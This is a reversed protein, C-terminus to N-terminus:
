WCRVLCGRGMVVGRPLSSLSFTCYCSLFFGRDDWSLEGAHTTDTTVFDVIFATITHCLVTIAACKGKVKLEGDSATEPPKYQLHHLKSRLQGSTAIYSPQLVAIKWWPQGGVRPADGKLETKALEQKQAMLVSLRNKLRANASKCLSLANREEDQSLRCCSSVHRVSRLYDNCIENTEWVLSNDSYMLALILKLRVAHADPSLDQETREQLLTFVWKEESTFQTDIACVEALQFAEEYQRGLMKLLILYLRSALTTTDLFTRSTHVPLLYFRTPPSHHQSHDARPEMIHSTQDM